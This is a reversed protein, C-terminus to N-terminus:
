KYMRFGILTDKIPCIFTQFQDTVQFFRDSQWGQHCSKHTSFFVEIQDVPAFGLHACPRLMHSTCPADHIAWKTWWPSQFSGHINAHDVARNDHNVCTNQMIPHDLMNEPHSGFALLHNSESHAQDLMIRVCKIMIWHSSFKWPDFM